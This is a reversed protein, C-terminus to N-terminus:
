DQWVAWWRGGQGEGPCTERSDTSSTIAVFSGGGGAGICGALDGPLFTQEWKMEKAREEWGVEMGFRWFGNHEMDLSWGCAQRETGGVPGTGWGWMHRQGLLLDM